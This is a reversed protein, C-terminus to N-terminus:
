LFRRSILNSLNFYFINKEIDYNFLRYYFCFFLDFRVEQGTQSGQRNFTAVKKLFTPPTDM